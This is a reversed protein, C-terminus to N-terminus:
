KREVKEQMQDEMAFQLACHEASSHKFYPRIIDETYVLGKYRALLQSLAAKLENLNDIFVIGPQQRSHLVLENM